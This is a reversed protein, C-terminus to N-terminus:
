TTEALEKDTRHESNKVFVEGCDCYYVDGKPSDFNVFLYKSIHKEIDLVTKESTAVEM